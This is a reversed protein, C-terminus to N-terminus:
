GVAGSVESKSTKGAIIVFPWVDRADIPFVSGFYDNWQKM